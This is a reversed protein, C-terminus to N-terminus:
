VCCEKPLVNKNQRPFHQGRQADADHPFIWNAQCSVIQCWFSHDKELVSMLRRKIMLSLSVSATPNKEKKELFILDKKLGKKWTM